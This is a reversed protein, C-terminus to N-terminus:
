SKSTTNGADNKKYTRMITKYAKNYNATTPTYGNNSYKIALATYESILEGTKINQKEAIELFDNLHKTNM